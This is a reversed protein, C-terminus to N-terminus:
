EAVIDELRSASIIASKMVVVSRRNVALGNLASEALYVEKNAHGDRCDHVDADVLVVTESAIEVLTGIYVIPTSTDLVVAQNLMSELPDSM